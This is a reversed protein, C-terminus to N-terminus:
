LLLRMRRPRMAILRFYVLLQMARMELAAELFTGIRKIIKKRGIQKNAPM